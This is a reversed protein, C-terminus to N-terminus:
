SHASCQPPSQSGWTVDFLEAMQRALHLDELKDVDFGIEPHMTIIAAVRAEVIRSAKAELEPLTLRHTLLGIIFRVGLLAALRLPSKRAAYLRGILGCREHVFARTVVVANGGTFTDERLHAYTRHAGPFRRECSEKPIISYTVDAHSAVSRLVFDDIAAPTLFPLDGTLVLVQDAGPHTSEIGRFINDVFSDSASVRIDIMDDAAATQVPDPAVLVIRNIESASRLATVIRNIITRGGIMLLARHHIGTHALIEGREVGGALVVADIMEPYDGRSRFYGHKRQGPCHASNEGLEM